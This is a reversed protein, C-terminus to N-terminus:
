RAFLLEFPTYKTAEHIKTRYALLVYPLCKTWEHPNEYCLTRLSNIIIKNVVEAAGNTSPKYAATVRHDIGVIRFLERVISNVWEKGQDSIIIKPPGFLCMYEWLKSSCEVASKSKIPVAYVYKTLAETIIMIGVYNDVEPLGFVLDISIRDFINIIPIAIAPHSIEPILQNRNCNECNDIIKIVDLEMNKWYYDEKIRDLTAKKQFHGMVHARIVIEEREEQKPIIIWTDNLFKKIIEKQTGKNEMKLLIAAKEIRKVHKKALGNVHRGYRLYHLLSEDEFVDLTKSTNDDEHNDNRLQKIKETNARTLALVPRSVYDANSNKVGARHIIEFDYAQSYIAWRALRAYWLKKEKKKNRYYLGLIM